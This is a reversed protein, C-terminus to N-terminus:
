DARGAREVVAQVTSWNRTTAPVGFSAEVLANPFGPRGDATRRAWSFVDLARAAFVEIHGPPSRLPLKPRSRPRAALFTVYPTWPAPRVPDFPNRALSRELERMPRLMVGIPAKFRARLGREMEWGSPPDGKEPQEFVVNGSARLTQVSGYGQAEVVKRLDEM